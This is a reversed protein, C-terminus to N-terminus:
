HHLTSILAPEDAISKRMFAVAFAEHNGVPLAGYSTTAYAAKEFFGMSQVVTRISFQRASDTLVNAELSQLLTRGIGCRTFIPDVFLFRLSGTLQNDRSEAWCAIGVMRSELFAGVVQRKNISRYLNEAFKSSELMDNFAATESDTAYQAYLKMYSDRKLTRIDAIYDIDVHEVSVATSLDLRKPKCTIDSM